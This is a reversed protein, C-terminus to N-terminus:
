RSADNRWFVLRQDIRDVIFYLLSGVMALIIILAYVTDIRLQFSYAAILYGLGQASGVFEGVIAGIVAFTLGSEIGAFMVPAAWPLSLKRFVQMRSGQLSRMLRLADEPVSALGVLTNILVPFFSVVVAMAIKSETGYGFWTILLPALVIKPISQFGVVLPYTLRKVPEFVGLAIGLFLGVATGLVFGTLMEYITVGFHPWFIPGTVLRWFSVAVDSIPPLIIASALGLRPILEWLAALVLIVVLSGLRWMWDDRRAKRRIQATSSARKAPGAQAAAAQSM